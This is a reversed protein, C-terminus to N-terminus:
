GVRLKKAFEPSRLVPGAAPPAIRPAHGRLLGALLQEPVVAPEANAQHGPGVLGPSPRQGAWEDDRADEEVVVTEAVVAHPREREEVVGLLDIGGRAILEVPGDESAGLTDGNPDERRGDDVAVNAPYIEGSFVNVLQANKFLLEAAKGSCTLGYLM